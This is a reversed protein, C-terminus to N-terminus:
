KLARVIAKELSPLKNKIIDWVIVLDVRFYAHALVDRFGAAKAWEVDPHEKRTVAPVNKAAEGIIELNRVVADVLKEDGCFDDFDNDGVYRDIKGIAELIDNLYLRPNRRM